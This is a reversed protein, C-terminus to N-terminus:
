VVVDVVEDGKTIPFFGKLFFFFEGVIVSFKEGVSETDLVEKLVPDVM